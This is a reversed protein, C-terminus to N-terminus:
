KNRYYIFLKTLCESRPYFDRYVLTPAFYFYLFKSYSPCPTNEDDWSLSIWSDQKRLVRPNQIGSTTTTTITGIGNLEVGCNTATTGNLRKRILVSSSEEPENKNEDEVGSSKDLVSKRESELSQVRRDSNSEEIFNLARPVNSRVFAYMKM